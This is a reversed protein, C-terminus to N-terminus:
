RRRWAAVSPTSAFTSSTRASTRAATNLWTVLSDGANKSLAIVPSSIERSEASVVDMAGLARHVLAHGVAVVLAAAVFAAIIAVVTLLYEPM